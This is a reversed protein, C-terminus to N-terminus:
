SAQLNKRRSLPTAINTASRILMHIMETEPVTQLELLREDTSEAFHLSIVKSEEDKRRLTNSIVSQDSSV